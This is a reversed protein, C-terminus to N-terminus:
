NSGVYLRYGRWVGYACLLAGIIISLTHNVIDFFNLIFLIGVGLYILIMFIGFAIRAGKPSMPKSNEEHGKM